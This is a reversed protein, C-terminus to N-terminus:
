IKNEFQIYKLRLPNLTATPTRKIDRPCFSQSATQLKLPMNAGTPFHGRLTLLQAVSDQIELYSSM